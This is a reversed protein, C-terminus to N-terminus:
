KGISKNKVCNILSKLEEKTLHSVDINEYFIQNKTNCLRIELTNPYQKIELSNSGKSAYAFQKQRYYGKWGLNKLWNKIKSSVRVRLM